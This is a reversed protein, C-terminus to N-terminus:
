HSVMARRRNHEAIQQCAQAASAYDCYSAPGEYGRDIAQARLDAKRQLVTARAEMDQAITQPDHM